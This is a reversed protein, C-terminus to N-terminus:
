NPKLIFLNVKDVRTFIDKDGSFTIEKDVKYKKFIGNNKLGSYDIIVSENNLNISPLNKDGYISEFQPAYYQFHKYTFTAVVLSNNPNYNEKVFKVAAVVPPTTNKFRKVQDFAQTFLVLFTLLLIITAVIKSKLVNFIFVTNLITLPALLPLTYRPVELNYIFFLPLLYSSAWVLLFQIKLDKLYDRMTFIWILSFISIILIVPTFGLGLIFILKELRQSLLMKISFPQGLLTDHKLIYNAIWQYSSLFQDFGTILVLPILWISIGIIFLLFSYLALKLNRHYFIVLITLSVMIPFETFRIGLMLGFLGSILIIAKKNNLFNFLLYIIFLLFFQGPINTLAVESLTWHVPTIIFILSSIAAIKNGFMKKSLLYLPVVTLSGLLVSLFSLALNDNGLPLLFFKGLLIYLPYGPPHPQHLILSFEHMAQAFQVSDWDELWPSIFQLRLLFAVLILIIPILNNKPM